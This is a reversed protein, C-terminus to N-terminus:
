QCPLELDSEKKPGYKCLQHYLPQRFAPGVRLRVPLQVMEQVIKYVM